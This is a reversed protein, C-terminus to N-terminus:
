PKAARVLEAVFDEVQWENGIIIRQIRGRADVVVTRVNHSFFEGDRELLLGFQETIADLEITEGTLFSWKAPDYHLKRAYDRLTAPTDHAPDFSISFLHWNTPAGALAARRQAAAAFNRSMRPCFAPYPCRTYFFTLGLAQGSFQRFTVAQRLENTFHYDPLLDGEALPEVVRAFRLSEVKPKVVDLAGAELVKLQDIWGEAATVNLRFSVRDGPKVRALENTERVTFPMTMAPMYGPIAEHKIMATKGGPELKMVVGTVQFVQQGPLSHRCGVFMAALTALLVLSGIARFSIPITFQLNSIPSKM